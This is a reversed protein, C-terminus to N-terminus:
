ARGDIILVSIPPLFPELAPLDPRRGRTHVRSHASMFYLASADKGRAPETM